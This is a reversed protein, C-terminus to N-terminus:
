NFEHAAPDTATMDYGNIIEMIWVDVDGLMRDNVLQQGPYQRATVSFGGVHLSKLNECFTSEDLWHNERCHAMFLPTKRTNRLDGMFAPSQPLGGGLSIAGAFYESHTMALRLAQSGGLGSGAIFVRDSRINYQLAVRDLCDFVQDNIDLELLSDNDPDFPISPAVGLYNRLSIKPMIQSLRHASRDVRKKGASAISGQAPDALWIILPYSYNKEYHMPLFTSADNAKVLNSFPNQFELPPLIQSLTPTKSNNQREM